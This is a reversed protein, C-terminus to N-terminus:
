EGTEEYDIFWSDIVGAAIESDEMESFLKTAIDMASDVDEAEVDVSVEGRYGIMMSYKM